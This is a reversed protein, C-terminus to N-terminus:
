PNFHFHVFLSRSKREACLCDLREFTRNVERSDEEEEEKVRESSHAEGSRLRVGVGCVCLPIGGVTPSLASDVRFMPPRCKDSQEKMGNCENLSFLPELHLLFVDIQVSVLCVLINVCLDAVSWCVVHVDVKEM